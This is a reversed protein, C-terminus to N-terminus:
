QNARVVREWTNAGKIAGQQHLPKNALRIFSGINADDATTM